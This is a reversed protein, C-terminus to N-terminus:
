LAGFYAQQDEYLTRRETSSLVRNFVLAESETGNLFNASNFAGLQLTASSNVVGATGSGVSANSMYITGLKSSNVFTALVAYPTDVTMATGSTVFAGTHYMEMYDGAAMYLGHVSDGGIFYNQYTDDAMTGVVSKTYDSNTPMGTASRFFNSTGNFVIAPRIATDGPGRETITPQNAATAQVADNGNGSQDYWKTIYATSVSSSTIGYFKAQNKELYTIDSASLVTPFLIVEAISSGSLVNPTSLKGLALTNTINGSWVVTLIHFLNSHTNTVTGNVRLTTAAPNSSAYAGGASNSYIYNTAGNMGFLREATGSGNLSSVISITRVNVNGASSLAYSNAATGYWAVPRNNAQLTNGNQFIIPMLSTTGQSIHKGNGTQDYWTDIRGKSNSQAGNGTVFNKLWTTNLTGDSIFKMAATGNLYTRYCFFPDGAYATRLKRFSYAASAAPLNDLPPATDGGALPDSSAGIFSDLAAWDLDGAPTFGIDLTTNDSSRRVQIAKGTYGSRLRRLSYAAQVGSISDLIFGNRGLQM